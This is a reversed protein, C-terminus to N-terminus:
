KLVICSTAFISKDIIYGDYSKEQGEELEEEEEEIEEGTEPDIKKPKVLFINQCDKFSRPLGDLVYGRNRCDNQNLRMKLLNYIIDDPVRVGLADKDIEPWEEGDPLEIEAREEEIKAAAADKLEELKTKIEFALGEEEETKSMELAQDSLQKVHVHPLNYYSSIKESYFSKGSAPPGTFFIKVPNLQRAENFEVNLSKANEIIGKECHWPFKLAKAAEEADEADEAPEGDKFVDSTKMKLNISLYDKWIISQAIDDSDL